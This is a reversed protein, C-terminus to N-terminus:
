PIDMRTKSLPCLLSVHVSTLIVESDPDHQLMEKITTLTRIPNTMGSEKLRQLLTTATLMNSRDDDQALLAAQNLGTMVSSATTALRAANLHSSHNGRAAGRPQPAAADETGPLSRDSLQIIASERPPFRSYYLEKIKALIHAPRNRLLTLARRELEKKKGTKKRGAFGLLLRLDKIQLSSIMRRYAPKM